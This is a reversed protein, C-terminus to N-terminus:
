DFRSLLNVVVTTKTSQCDVNIKALEWFIKRALDEIFLSIQDNMNHRIVYSRTGSSANEEISIDVMRCYDELVELCSHIDFKKRTLLAWDRISNFTLCAAENRHKEDLNDLIYFLNEEPVPFMRMRHEFKDWTVYQQLIQNILVNTSIMMRKAEKEIDSIIEDTVRFSVTRTKKRPKNLTIESFTM